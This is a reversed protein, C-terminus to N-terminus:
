AHAYTNSAHCSSLWAITLKPRPNQNASQQLLKLAADGECRAKLCTICKAHWTHQNRPICGSSKRLAGQATTFAVSSHLQQLDDRGLVMYHVHMKNSDQLATCAQHLISSQSKTKQKERRMTVADTRTHQHRHNWTAYSCHM